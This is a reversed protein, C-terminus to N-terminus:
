ILLRPKVSEVKVSATEDKRIIELKRYKALSDASEILKDKYKLLAFGKDLPNIPNLSKLHRLLSELNDKQLKFYRRFNIHLREELDDLLQFSFNVRDEIKKFVYSKVLNIIEDRRDELYYRIKKNLEEYLFNVEDQLMEITFPTALEAAATPTPARKDAVFDAITFDTEHGVASIIPIKSEFIARAVIEENFAWLDELSGGGRGVIILDLPLTNLEQIASVIDYKADDGQVLTERFYIVCLPNRRRITTIMDQIAAGTSSTAIGIKLPFEPLPKKYKVDFLGEEGLKRKLEEFKLYLDGIGIPIINVCDIQYQGRAPYVTLWGTVIVKMGDSPEFNIQKSRWFVCNIQAEEDKLTFYRHGSSHLKYNSIEGQVIVFGIEKQLLDTIRRTLESVTVVDDFRVFDEM